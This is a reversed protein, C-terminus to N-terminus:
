GAEITRIAAGDELGGQGAVIVREAADLGEVAEVRGGEELGLTVSRKEAVDGNAVFVFTSQLERVVAERPLLVAARRTEKVIDVSVFAGPRVAKPVQRAEVTVKVTGTATDVVPSIQRIRGTFTVSDEARLGLRVERGEELALVDQEPLYIRAVLPDFDAIRFMPDGPRVHQGARATRETVRGAFPARIYTKELRWGAEALEQDAVRSELAVKDFAEPSLLDQSRLIQAREFALRATEARIRAKEVAIEADGRALEALIQGAAVVDGEEVAMKALRGEWEALVDVENEPVLNATATLYSSVEGVQIAESEVPIPAADGDRDANADTDASTQPATGEAEVDKVSTLQFALLATLILAGLVFAPLRKKATETM